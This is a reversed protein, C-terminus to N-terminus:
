GGGRVRPNPIAHRGLNRITIREVPAQSISITGLRHASPLEAAPLGAALVATVAFFGARGRM